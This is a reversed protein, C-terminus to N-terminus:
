TQCQLPRVSELRCCRFIFVKTGQSM